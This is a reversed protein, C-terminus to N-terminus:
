PRPQCRLSELLCLLGNTFSLALDQSFVFGFWVRAGTLFLRTSEQDSSLHGPCGGRIVNIDPFFSVDPCLPFSM